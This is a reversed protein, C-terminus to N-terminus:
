LVTDLPEDVESDPKSLLVEAMLVYTGDSPKWTLQNGVDGSTRIVVVDLGALLALACASRLAGRIRPLLLLERRSLRREYTGLYAGGHTETLHVPDGKQFRGM